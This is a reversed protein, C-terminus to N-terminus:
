DIIERGADGSPKGGKAKVIDDPTVDVVTSKVM